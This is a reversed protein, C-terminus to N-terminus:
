AKKLAAILADEDPTAAAAIRTAGAERLSQAIRDSLCIQPLALASVEFGDARVAAIFALASQRSYHLVAGIGGDALARRAVDPLAKVAAMKYVTKTIVAIGSRELLGPLDASVNEGALYLLPSAKEKKLLTVLASADGQGSRADRFGAERAAAATHDGVAFLPLARLREPLEGRLANASTVVVGAFKDNGIQAPLAEFRLLPALVVDYGKARLKAETARNDPEPRTVLIAM